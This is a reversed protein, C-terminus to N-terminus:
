TNELSAGINLSERFGGRCSYQARARVSFRFVRCSVLCQVYPTAWAADTRTESRLSSRRSLPFMLVGVQEFSREVQVQLDM